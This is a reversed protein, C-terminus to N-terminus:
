SRLNNSNTNDFRRAYKVLQEKNDSKLSTRLAYELKGSNLANEWCTLSPCLYAGRGSKKGTLDIEIGEGPVCVLRVLERKYVTKRCSICTRQPLHRLPVSATKNKMLIMVREKALLISRRKRGRSIKLGDPGRLSFIRLL